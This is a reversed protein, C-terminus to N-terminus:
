PGSDVLSPDILDAKILTTIWHDFREVGMSVTKRRTADEDQNGVRFWKEGSSLRIIPARDKQAPGRLILAIAGKSTASSHWTNHHLVFAQGAPMEREFYVEFDDLTLEDVSKFSHQDSVGWLTEFHSGSLIHTAFPFRHQHLREYQDTNALRWRIRFGKEELGDFLVIKDDLDHVECMTFLHPDSRANLTLATLLCRDLSLRELIERARLAAAEFDSWDIPEVSTLWNTM